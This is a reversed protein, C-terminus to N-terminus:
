LEDDENNNYLKRLLPRSLMELEQYKSDYTEKELQEGGKVSDLWKMTEDMTDRLEKEDEKSLTTAEDLSTSLNYVFSELKNKAVMAESVRKDEEAYLEAEEIMRTIDEQSLRGTESTITITQKKNNKAAKNEATVELLGNADLRVTVTISVSGKPAPPINTFVFEGLFHNDKVLSREGEYIDITMYSQNDQLTVYDGSRKTPITTGRPILVSMIGDEVSTGLSLPTVDLLMINKM